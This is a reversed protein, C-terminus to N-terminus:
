LFMNYKKLDNTYVVPTKEWTYSRGISNIEVIGDFFCHRKQTLHFYNIVIICRPTDRTYFVFKPKKTTYLKISIKSLGKSKVNKKLVFDVIIIIIAGFILLLKLYYISLTYNNLM